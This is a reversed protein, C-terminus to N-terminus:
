GDTEIGLALLAEHPTEAVHVRTPWNKHWEAQDRSLKPHMGEYQGGQAFEAVPVYNQPNGGEPNKVELLVNRGRAALQQLGSIISHLGRELQVPLEPFVYLWREVAEAAALVGEDSKCGVLLDIRGGGGPLPEVSCGAARLAAVIQPENEDRSEARHGRRHHRSM